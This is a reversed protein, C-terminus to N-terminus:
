YFHSKVYSIAGRFGEEMKLISADNYATKLANMSFLKLKTPNKFLKYISEALKEPNPLCFLGNEQDKIYEVEPSHIPIRKEVDLYTIVPCGFAFAHVVSLGVYGPMVMLDSSFLLKGAHVQDFVAGHFFINSLGTVEDKLKSKEPGDGIIHLALDLEKSLIRFAKVLDMLGKGSLLRGIFILNFTKSFGLEYRIKERGKSNLNYYISKLYETNLTNRAVFVKEPLKIHDKVIKARGDSYLIIADAKNFIWLQIKSRMNNFPIDMENFRIGHSWIILKYSFFFRLFILIWLTLYTIAGESIIISPKYNHIAHIPNQMVSTETKGIYICPIKIFHIDDDIDESKLSSGSKHKSYCIYIGIKKALYKFVPIRYSPLIRQFILINNKKM